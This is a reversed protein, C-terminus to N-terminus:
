PAFGRVAWARARLRITGDGMQLRRRLRDRLETRGDATLSHVFAPAPGTGGLFPQWYDDFNQFETQINLAHTKVELLGAGEFISTLPEPRAVPFRRGEDLEIASTDVAAAEDWFHRLFMMGEAYDWVYAAVIGGPALREAMSAVAREPDPVFNLVLGSVVADFGGERSPLNETGSCVFSSRKDTLQQRASAIYSESPDCGHVSAPECLECITSSLAGTGCGVDLWHASPRSPLWAIFIRAVARSWRGMFAEYATGGDWRDGSERTM